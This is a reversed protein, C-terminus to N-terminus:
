PTYTYTVTVLSSSLSSAAFSIVGLNQFCSADAKGLVKVTIADAGIFDVLNTPSTVTSLVYSSKLTIGSSGNFDTVGDYKSLVNTHVNFIANTVSQIVPMELVVFNNHRSVHNGGASAHRNELAIMNTFSTALKIEVKTLVGNSPNFKPISSDLDWDTLAFPTNLTHVIEDAKTSVAFSLLAFILFLIKM